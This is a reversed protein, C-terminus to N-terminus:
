KQNESVLIATAGIQIADAIDEVFVRPDAKEVRMRGASGRFWAFEGEDKVLDIGFLPLSELREPPIRVWPM